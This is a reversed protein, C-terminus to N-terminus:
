IQENQRKTKSVIYLSFHWLSLSPPPVSHSHFTASLHSVVCCLFPFFFTLFLSLICLNVDFISVDTHFVLMEWSDGVLSNKDITSTRLGFSSVAVAFRTGHCFCCLYPTAHKKRKLCIKVRQTTVRKLFSLFLFSFFRM